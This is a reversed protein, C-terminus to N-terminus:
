VIRCICTNLSKLFNGSFNDLCFHTCHISNTYNYNCQINCSNLVGRHRFDPMNGSFRLSQITQVPAWLPQKMFTQVYSHESTTHNDKDYRLKYLKDFMILLQIVSGSKGPVFDFFMAWAGKVCGTWPSVRTDRNCRALKYLLQSPSNPPWYQEAESGAAACHRISTQIFPTLQHPLLVPTHCKTLTNHTSGM